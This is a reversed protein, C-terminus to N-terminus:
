IKSNIKFSKAFAHNIENETYYMKKLIDRKILNKFPSMERSSAFSKGFESKFHSLLCNNNTVSEDENDDNQTQNDMINEFFDDMLTNIFNAIFQESQHDIKKILSDPIERIIDNNLTKNENILEKFNNQNHKNKELEILQYNSINNKENMLIGNIDM